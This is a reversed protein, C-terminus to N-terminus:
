KIWRWIFPTWFRPGASPAAIRVIRKFILGSDPTFPVTLKPRENFEVLFFEDNPMPPRSFHRPRM